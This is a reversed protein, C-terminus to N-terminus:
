GGSIAPIFAVEDGQRLTVELGPEIYSENVSIVASHELTALRPYAEFIVQKLEDVDRLVAPVLLSAESTGALERANAFLFLRVSVKGPMAYVCAFLQTTVTRAGNHTTPVRRAILRAHPHVTLM